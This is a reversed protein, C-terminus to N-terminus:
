ESFSASQVYVVHDVFRVRGFNNKAFALLRTSCHKNPIGDGMDMCWETRSDRERTGSDQKGGPM